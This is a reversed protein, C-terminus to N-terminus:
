NKPKRGAEASGDSKLEKSLTRRAAVWGEKTVQHARAVALAGAPVDKTICSGAGVYAGDEVTVPAVLTSDSGIFAGEGIRTLYKKVGDYNCTIVGAGINTKAGIETDGLYSLHGAKVGKQLKAKKLEVFNGIHVDEGIECGPRMRAFPGIDAGDAISSGALVCSQRVIIGNGLTCNEIVSYSRIRCESGVKTGGLLQVYPEIVTDPGVEVDSDIMCTDPRFITVGSAMLRLATGNRVQRDYGVLEPITNIRRLESDEVQLTVVREGESRLKAAIAAFSDELGEGAKSAKEFHALLPAARFACVASNRIEGQPAEGLSTLMTLTAAESEHLQVLQKLTETRIRAVDGPLCVVHEFATLVDHASKLPHHHAASQVPHIVKVGSEVLAAVAKETEAGILVNIDGPAVLGSAAAIARSLLTKGGAEQLASPRRTKPEAGTGAALVVVALKSGKRQGSNMQTSV